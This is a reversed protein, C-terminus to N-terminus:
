RFRAPRFREPNQMDALEVRVFETLGRYRLTVLDGEIKAVVVPVWRRTDASYMEWLQGLEIEMGPGVRSAESPKM